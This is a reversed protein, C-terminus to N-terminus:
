EAGFTDKLHRNYTVVADEFTGDAVISLVVSVLGSVVGGGLLLLETESLEGGGLYWGFPYGILGGGMGAFISAWLAQNSGKRYEARAEDSSFQFLASVRQYPYRYEKQGQLFYAGWYLHGVKSLQYERMLANAEATSSTKEQPPIEPDPITQCGAFLLCAAMAILAFIAARSRRNM